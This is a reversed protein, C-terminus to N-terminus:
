GPLARRLRIYQIATAILGGLILALALSGSGPLDKTILWRIVGIVVAAAPFWALYRLVVASKFQASCVHKGRAALRFVVANVVLLGLPTAELVTRRAADSLPALALVGIALVAVLATVSLSRGAAQLTLVEAREDREDREERVIEGARRWTDRLGM